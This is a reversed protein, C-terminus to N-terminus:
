LNDNKNFPKKILEWLGIAMAYIFYGASMAAVLFLYWARKWPTHEEAM